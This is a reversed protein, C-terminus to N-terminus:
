LRTFFQTAKPAVTHKNLVYVVFYLNCQSEIKVNTFSVGLIQGSIPCM